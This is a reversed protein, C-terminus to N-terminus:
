VLFSHTDCEKGKNERYSKHAIREKDWEEKDPIVKFLYYSIFITLGVLGVKVFWLPALYISIGMLLYIQLIIRKKRKKSISKTERYDAVYAQYLKTGHLWKEFRQSSKAFCAMALLLFPTTPLIPLPIGIIGLGLSIFGVTIYVYKLSDAGIRGSM